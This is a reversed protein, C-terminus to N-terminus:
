SYRIRPDFWAYSLDVLLNIFVLFAAIVLVASQVMPLDRGNIADLLSRGLGPLNFISEVIVVGGVLFGLQGGIITVVPIFANKLGHRVIITRERLGKSWATRIYDQRMVELMTSRLMRMTISSLRVGIILAPTIMILLNQRPDEWFEVYTLPPTWKFWLAGFLIVMSGIIFEPISLGGVAFIRGTYDSPSDQRIASWIGIPIAVFMSIIMALIGLELSVPIAKKLTSAISNNGPALSTGFDGVFIGGLWDLYQVIFPRDLGLDARIADLEAPTVATANAESIAAVVADGPALRILSAAMLSVLLLVPICILLRRVAYRGM